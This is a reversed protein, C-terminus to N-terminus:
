SKQMFFNDEALKMTEGLDERWVYQERRSFFARTNILNVSDPTPLYDPWRGASKRSVPAAGNLRL